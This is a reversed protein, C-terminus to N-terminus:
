LYDVNKSWTIEPEVKSIIDLSGDITVICYHKWHEVNSNNFALGRTAEEFSELYESNKVIYCSGETLTGWWPKFFYVDQPVLRFTYMCKFYIEVQWSDNSLIISLSFGDAEAKEFFLEEKYHPFYKWTEMVEM